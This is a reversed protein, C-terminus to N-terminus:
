YMLEENATKSSIIKITQLCNDSPFFEVTLIGFKLKRYSNSDPSGDVGKNEQRLSWGNKTLAPGIKNVDICMNEPPPLFVVTHKEPKDGWNFFFLSRTPMNDGISMNFYWSKGRTLTYVKAHYQKLFEEDLKMTVGFINEVQEKTVYGNPQGAVQLIEGWLEDVTFPYPAQYSSGSPEKKDSASQNSNSEPVAFTETSIGLISALISLLFVIHGIGNKVSYEETIFRSRYCVSWYICWAPQYRRLM